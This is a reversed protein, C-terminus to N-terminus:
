EQKKKLEAEADAAELASVKTSLRRMIALIFACATFGSLMPYQRAFRTLIQVRGQVYRFGKQISSLMSQPVLIGTEYDDIYKLLAETEIPVRRGDLGFPVHLEERSNLLVVAPLDAAELKLAGRVYNVWATADLIAFRLPTDHPVQKYKYATEILERRAAPTAEAEPEFIGLALWGPRGLINGVNHNGM